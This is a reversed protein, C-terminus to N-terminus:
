PGSTWSSTRLRARTAALGVAGDAGAPAGDGGRGRRRHPLPPDGARARAARPRADRRHAPRAPRRRAPAAPQGHCTASYRALWDRVADRQGAGAAAVFASTLVVFLGVHSEVLDPASRGSAVLAPVAKQIILERQERGGALAERLLVEFARLFQEAAREDLDAAERGLAAEAQGAVTRLEVRGSDLAETIAAVADPV